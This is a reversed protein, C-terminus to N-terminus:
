LAKIFVKSNRQLNYLAQKALPLAELSERSFGQEQFWHSTQTTLVFVRELGQAKAEDILQSLL